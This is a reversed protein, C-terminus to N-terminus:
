SINDLKWGLMSLHTCGNYLTVNYKRMNGNYWKASIKHLLFNGLRGIYNEFCVSSYSNSIASSIYIVLHKVGVIGVLPGPPCLALIFFQCDYPHTVSPMSVWGVFMYHMLPQVCHPDNQLCYIWIWKQLFINCQSEFEVSMWELPDLNSSANTWIM